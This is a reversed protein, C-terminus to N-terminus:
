HQVLFLYFNRDQKLNQSSNFIAKEEEVAQILDQESPLHLKYLSSFITKNDEPLTYKVATENKTTSLLIGITKNEDERKIERDYYNTYMLMQGIEKYGVKGIKLDIIVFCKLIRNYFVLDPYFHDEELTLRVQNGVYSFGKGLELLFEKLHSLISQELDTELYKINEKIDLFELVFPDKVLDKGDKLIQGKTSLEKVKKKDKSFFLREYYLSSIQRQLERVSWNSQISETLYFGRKNEEPIKILELYHSWSLKSSVTKWIPYVIYFKRMTRLNRASFGKGFEKTLKESLSELVANGYTAREDGNQIEMIMKGICWYLHLMETNVVSYVKNRANVVLEKIDKFVLDIQHNLNKNM